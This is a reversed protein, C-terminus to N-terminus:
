SFLLSIWILMVSDGCHDALEAQISFPLSVFNATGSSAGTVVAVRQEGPALGQIDLEAVTPTHTM